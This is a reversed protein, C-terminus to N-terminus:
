VLESLMSSLALNGHRSGCIWARDVRNATHSRILGMGVASQDGCGDNGVGAASTTWPSEPVPLDATTAATRLSAPAGDAIMRDRSHM